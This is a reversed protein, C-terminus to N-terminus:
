KGNGEVSGGSEADAKIARYFFSFIFIFSHYPLARNISRDPHKAIIRRGSPHTLQIYGFTDLRRPALGPLTAEGGSPKKTSPRTYIPPIQTYVIQVGPPGVTPSM